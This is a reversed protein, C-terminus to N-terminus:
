ENGGEANNRLDIDWGLAEARYECEPLYVGPENDILELWGAVTDGRFNERDDDVVGEAVVATHELLAVDCRPCYAEFGRIDDRAGVALHLIFEACGPCYVDLDTEDSLILLEGGSM